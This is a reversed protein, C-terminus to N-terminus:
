SSTSVFRAGPTLSQLVRTCEMGPESFVLAPLERHSYRMFEVAHIRFMLDPRHAFYGVLGAVCVGELVQGSVIYRELSKFHYTDHVQFEVM